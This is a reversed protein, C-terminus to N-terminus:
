KKKFYNKLSEQEIVTNAGKKYAEYWPTGSRHTESVLYNASYKGQDEWIEEVFSKIDEPLGQPDKSIKLDFATIPFVGCVKFKDYVERVVPGLDWAIISDKFLPKGTKALYLGQAFYLLKQLKLNTLDNEDLKSALYVFYSSIDLASLLPM